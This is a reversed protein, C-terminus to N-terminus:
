SCPSFIDPDPTAIGIVGNAYISLLASPSRLSEHLAYPILPDTSASQVISRYYQWWNEIWRFAFNLPFRVTHRSKKYQSLFRDISLIECTALAQITRNAESVNFIPAIGVIGNQSIADHRAYFAAINDEVGSSHPISPELAIAQVREVRASHSFLAIHCRSGGDCCEHLNSHRFCLNGVTATKAAGNANDCRLHLAFQACAMAFHASFPSATREHAYRALRIHFEFPFLM